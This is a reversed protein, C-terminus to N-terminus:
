DELAPELRLNEAKKTWADRFEPYNNWKRFFQEITMAKSDKSRMLARIVPSPVTLSPAVSASESTVARGVKEAVIGNLYTVWGSEVRTKGLVSRLAEKVCVRKVYQGEAENPAEDVEVEGDAIKRFAAYVCQELDDFFGRPLRVNQEHFADRVATQNVLKRPEM